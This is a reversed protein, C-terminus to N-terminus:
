DRGGKSIPSSNEAFAPIIERIFLDLSRRKAVGGFGGDLGLCFQDVGLSEYRKLRAIIEDPNGVMHAARIEELPRGGGDASDPFGRRVSAINQFLTAFRKEYKALARAGDAIEKENEGIFTQRMMMLRPRAAASNEAVARRFKEALSEVEDDSKGLPTAMVNCGAAVAFRHTDMDRAAIWLPPHPNQLPKPVSTASPFKWCEGDASFDGQWLGKLAPILERLYKGGEGQPIGGAMRDFEYQYAGRAIGLELRGGSIIDTLAAEGALKIPHWYPATVIATGLRIRKAKGALHSILNLPAPSATFEIGHHEALWAAEFGGDEARLVLDTLESLLESHPPDAPSYREMNALISFKM